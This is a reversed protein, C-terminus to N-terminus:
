ICFLSMNMGKLIMNQVMLIYFQINFWHLDVNAMRVFQVIYYMAKM